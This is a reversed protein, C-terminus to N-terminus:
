YLGTLNTAATGTSWVRLARLPHYGVAANSIVITTGDIMTVKLDGTVGVYISRTPGLPMDATDSPTIAFGGVAPSNQSAAYRANGLAEPPM